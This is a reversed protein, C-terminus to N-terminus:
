NTIEVPKGDELIEFQDKALGQVRQGQRDTVYVEVNVVNVDISEFFTQEDPAAPTQAATAAAVLSATLAATLRFSVPRSRASGFM